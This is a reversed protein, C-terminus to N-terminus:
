CHIFNMFLSLLCTTDYINFLNIEIYYDIRQDLLVFLESSKKNTKLLIHIKVNFVAEGGKFKEGFKGWYNGHSPSSWESM